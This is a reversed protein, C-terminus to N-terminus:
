RAVWQTVAPRLRDATAKRVAIGAITRKAGGRSAEPLNTAAYANIKGPMAPDNSGGGLGVIYGARSSEEVFGDVTAKNAVAWDFAMDPHRAAVARLLAAKQPPTITDTKLLALARTAIADERAAGLLTVFRNKAVPNKEAKTLALLADWEAPTANVAYTSLIPQRIAPPIATPDKALAAVYARARAMVAPDGNTGLRGVLTERLNSVLPSEGPKADIGIRALVPSLIAIQRARIPAELPTNEYLGAIKGLGTAVTSWELPDATAGVQATVAFYRSLDQYGGAALAYDDGLTGLKDTLDLKAYDKVIAAHGADDYLVRTYSGKGRNLVLTGCGQVTVSTSPGTVITSAQGGGLTAVVLPVHWTQPTKSAADLGFRGQALTANTKGGVCQARTLTVLPVGGQLTFDHAIEAVPKGAAASLEAWLQETVTNGYKYKAMYSRIGQRFVDPGLTSELMGIVAQGKSYTIGDFAEGIQDVTEIKRIIPHTAATADIGMAAERESAVADAASKWAPMLDGSSKGEMWSAFGENLWLDDWWAMTVLDGFWQHAMEHAVVTYIRQKNSETARKADFLLENEFYFIAGWNEMAGFFQSSGPGAIMDMKPLPYPQGFYDNYYTLLNKAAALAFDGQDVVGRRSIIGIETKGAQITKREMDGMGLFLLYSSMVPTEGFRYLQTGDAQKTVSTAPMNSFALDKGPATAALRFKAKFSPEDWMPAFRRADPAEFQTALMRAPSGDTNTYDIAFLGSASRGITGSWAFALTHRGVSAAKPLTVTLLQAAEDIKFAAPAGDFTASAIKLGAANLQITRTATKVDVTVTESGSFTMAKADPKMSIDYLVPVVTRPLQGAALAPASVTLSLLATAVALKM